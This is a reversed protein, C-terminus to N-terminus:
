IKCGNSPPLSIVRDKCDPKESEPCKLRVHFHRGHGEDYLGRENYSPVLFRLMQYHESQPDDIGEGRARVLDCFARKVRFNVYVGMLSDRHRRYTNLILEYNHEVDFDPNLRGSSDVANLNTVPRLISRSLYYFDGDLGNQHSKQGVLPGGRQGSLNGVLFLGGPKLKIFEDIMSMVYDKMRLSTWGTPRLRQFNDTKLPIFEANMLRGNNHYNHSQAPEYQPKPQDKVKPKRSIPQYVLPPPALEIEEAYQIPLSELIEPPLTELAIPKPSKGDVESPPEPIEAPVSAQEDDDSESDGSTAIAPAEVRSRVQVMEDRDGVRRYVNIVVLDCRQTADSQSECLAKARFDSGAELPYLDSVLREGQADFEGEMRLTGRSQATLVEVTLTMREKSLDINLQSSPVSFSAKQTSRLGEREQRKRVVEPMVYNKFDRFTAKGDIFRILEADTPHAEYAHRSNTRESVVDRGSPSCAGLSLAMGLAGLISKLGWSRTVNM